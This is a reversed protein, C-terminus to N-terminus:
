VDQAETNAAGVPLTRISQVPLDFLLQILATIPIQATRSERLASHQSEHYHIRPGAGRIHM